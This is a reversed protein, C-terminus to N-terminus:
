LDLQLGLEVVREPPINFWASAPRANRAVFGFLAESWRGMRGRDTALFTERGIYYTADHEKGAILGASTAARLDSPIDPRQM